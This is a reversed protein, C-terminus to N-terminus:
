DLQHMDCRKPDKDSRFSYFVPHRFTTSTIQEMAHVEIVRGIYGNRDQSVAIRTADDFGSVKGCEVLIGDDNYLSFCISGVLDQYKGSGATYGSIVAEFTIEKKCKMSCNEPTKGPKYIANVNKFMLGEIKQEKIFNM